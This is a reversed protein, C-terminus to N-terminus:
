QGGAMCDHARGRDTRPVGAGCQVCFGHEDDFWVFREGAARADAAAHENLHEQLGGGIVDVGCYCRWVRAPGESVEVV